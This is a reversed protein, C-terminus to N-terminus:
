RLSWSQKEPNSRRQPHTVTPLMAVMPPLAVSLYYAVALQHSAAVECHRGQGGRPVPLTKPAAIPPSSLVSYCARQPRTTNLSGETMALRPAVFCDLFSMGVPNSREARLSPRSLPPVPGTGGPVPPRAPLRAKLLILQVSLLTDVLHQIDPVILEDYPRPKRWMGDQLVLRCSQRFFVLVALGGFTAWVWSM